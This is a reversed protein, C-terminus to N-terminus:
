KSYFPLKMIEASGEAKKIKNMVIGMTEKVGFSFQGVIIESSEIDNEKIKRIVSIENPRIVIPENSYKDHLVIIKM